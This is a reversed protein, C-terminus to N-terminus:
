RESTVNWALMLSTLTPCEAANDPFRVLLSLARGKVNVGGVSDEVEIPVPLPDDFTATDNDVMFGQLSIGDKINSSHRTYRFLKMLSYEDEGQEDHIGFYGGLWFAGPVPPNAPNPLSEDSTGQKVNDILPIETLLGATPSALSGPLYPLAAILHRSNDAYELWQLGNVAYDTPWAGTNRAADAGVDVVVMMNPTLSGDVCIALLYWDRQLYNIYASEVKDQTGPTIRKLLGALNPALPKPPYFGSNEFVRLNLGDDLWVLGIPTSQVSYHSYLGIHYPLQEAYFSLSAPASVTIDNLTGRYIYMYGNTAFFVMGGYRLLGMGCPYAEGQGLKIENFQCWCMQPRGFNISDFGTFRVGTPDAAMGTMLVRDLWVALYKGLPAVGNDYPATQGSTALQEDMTTDLLVYYGAYDGTAIAKVVGTRNIGANTLYQTGGGDQNRFLAVQDVQPDASPPILLVPGDNLATMLNPSLPSLSGFHAVPSSGYAVGWQYGNTSAPLGPFSARTFPGADPLGPQLFTLTTALPTTAIKWVGEFSADWPVGAVSDVYFPQGPAAGHPTAFTATTVGATRQLTISGGYSTSAIVTPAAPPPAIGWGFRRTPNGTPNTVPLVYGAEQGNCFYTLGNSVAYDLRALIGALPGGGYQVAITYPYDAYMLTAGQQIILRPNQNPVPLYGLSLVAALDTAANAPNGWDILTTPMQFVNLWGGSDGYVNLCDRATDPPINVVSDSAAIGRFRTFTHSNRGM